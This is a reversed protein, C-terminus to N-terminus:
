HPEALFVAYRYVAYEIGTTTLILTFLLILPTAPVVVELEGTEALEQAQGRHGWYTV